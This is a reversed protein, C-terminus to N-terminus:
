EKEREENPFKVTREFIVAQLWIFLKRFLPVVESIELNEDISDENVVDPKGFAIIILRIHEQLFEYLRKNYLDNEISRQFERWVKMKPNAPEVRVGNIVITPKDM